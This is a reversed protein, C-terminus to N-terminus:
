LPAYRRCAALQATIKNLTDPEGERGAATIPVRCGPEDPRRLLLEPTEEGRVSVRHL